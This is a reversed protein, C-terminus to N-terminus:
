EGTIKHRHGSRGVPYRRRRVGIRPADAIEGKRCDSQAQQLEAIVHADERGPSESQAQTRHLHARESKYNQVEGTLRRHTDQALAAM